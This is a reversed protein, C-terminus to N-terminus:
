GHSSRRDPAARVPDAGSSGHGPKARHLRPHDVDPRVLIRRGWRGPGGSPDVWRAGRGGTPRRGAPDDSAATVYARSAGDGGIAPARFLGSLIDANELSDGELDVEGLFAESGTSGTHLILRSPDVFDWYFPAAARVIESPASADAPAIRLAIDDPNPESTLFTVHRSDPAWYLYFAPREDSKYITTPQGGAAPDADFVDVTM